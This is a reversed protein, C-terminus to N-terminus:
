MPAPREIAEIVIFDQPVRQPKLTLGLQEDIATFLSPLDASAPPVAGVDPRWRLELEYVGPLRTENLVPGGAWMRLVRALSDMNTAGRTIILGPVASMLCPPRDDAANAGATTDRCADAIFTIKPGLAGDARKVTMAFGAMDRREAHARLKFDDVLMRTVMVHMTPEAVATDAKAEIDFRESDVWSPGGTVVDRPQQYAWAIVDRATTNTAVFRGGPAPGMSMARRDGSAPKISVVEFAFSQAGIRTLVTLLVLAAITAATHPKM